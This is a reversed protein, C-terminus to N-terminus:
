NKPKGCDSCKSWWPGNEQGCTCQWTKDGRESKKTKPAVNSGFM